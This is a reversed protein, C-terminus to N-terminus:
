GNPLLEMLLIDADLGREVVRYGERVYLHRAPNAREVSLGIARHGASRARHAIEQLLAHGVGCGRWTDLVAISLEPVDDAVYGYGPNDATSIRLWGAGIPDGRAHAILGLDGPRPWGEIYRALVPDAAVASRSLHRDPPWNVAEVLMDLLFGADKATALQFSLEGDMLELM